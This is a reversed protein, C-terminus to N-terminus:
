RMLGNGFAQFPLRTNVLNASFSLGRQGRRLQLLSLPVATLGVTGMMMAIGLRQSPRIIM